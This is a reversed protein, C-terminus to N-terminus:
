VHDNVSKGKAGLDFPPFWFLWLFLPNQQKQLCQQRYLPVAIAMFLRKQRFIPRSVRTLAYRRQLGIWAGCPWVAESLDSRLGYEIDAVGVVYHKFSKRAEVHSQSIIFVYSVFQWGNVQTAHLYCPPLFVYHVMMPLLPKPSFPDWTTLLATEVVIYSM